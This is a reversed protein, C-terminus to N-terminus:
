AQSADGAEESAADGADSAGDGAGDEVTQDGLTAVARTVAGEEQTYTFEIEDGVQYTVISILGPLAFDYVADDGKLTVYFHSNGDIVAQAITAITGQAPEGPTAQAAASQAQEDSLIGNNALLRVYEQQCEAVTDGVAVYQYSEINVMAFKKVLGAGDKLAMFYTPQSEINLLLPFTATYRLNQVQGEASEMASQETAGAMSFYTAEGTRQNM